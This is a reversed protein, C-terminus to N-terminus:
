QKKRPLSWKLIDQIIQFLYDYFLFHIGANKFRSESLEQMFISILSWKVLVQYVFLESLLCDEMSHDEMDQDYPTKIM